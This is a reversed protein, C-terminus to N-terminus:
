VNAIDLQQYIEDIFNQNEYIKLREYPNFSKIATKGDNRHVKDNDAGTDVESLHLIYPLEDSLQNAQNQSRRRFCHKILDPISLLLYM